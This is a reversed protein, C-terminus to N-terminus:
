VLICSGCDGNDDCSGLLESCLTSLDKQERTAWEKERKEKALREDFSRQSAEEKRRELERESPYYM